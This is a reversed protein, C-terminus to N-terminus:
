MSQALPLAPRLLCWASSDKKRGVAVFVMLRQDLSVREVQLVFTDGELAAEVSGVSGPFWCCRRMWVRTEAPSPRMGEKFRQARQKFWFVIFLVISVYAGNAEAESHVSHSGEADNGSYGEDGQPSGSPSSGGGRRGPKAAPSGLTPLM